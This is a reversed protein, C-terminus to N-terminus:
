KLLYYMWKLYEQFVELFSEESLWWTEPKNKETTAPAVMFDIRGGSERELAFLARSTHSWSTVLIVKPRPPFTKLLYAVLAEAEESTSTVSVDSLVHIADAAVGLRELYIKTAEADNTKFGMKTLPEDENHAFVIVPARKEQWLMAAVPTRDSVKGMLIVIADANQLTNEIILARGAYYLIRERAFWCATIAVFPLIWLLHKKKM